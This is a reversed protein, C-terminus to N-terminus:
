KNDKCLWRALVQYESCMSMTTSTFRVISRTKAVMHTTAEIAGMIGMNVSARKLKMPLDWAKGVVDYGLIISMQSMAVM